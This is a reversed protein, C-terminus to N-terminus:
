TKRSHHGTLLRFIMRTSLFSTRSLKFQTLLPTTKKSSVIVMPSCLKYRPHVQDTLINVYTKATIRGSLAIMPSASSWSIAGLGMVSDGGHKVRPLLCDTNYAQSGWYCLSLPRYRCFDSRGIDCPMCKKWYRGIDALM